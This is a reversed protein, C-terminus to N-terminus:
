STEPCDYTCGFGCSHCRSWQVSTVACLVHQTSIAGVVASLDEHPLETLTERHLSLRRKNM